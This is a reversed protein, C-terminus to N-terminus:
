CSSFRGDEDRCIDSESFDRSPTNPSTRAKFGGPTRATVQVTEGSRLKLTEKNNVAKNMFEREAKLSESTNKVTLARNNQTIREKNEKIVQQKKKEYKDKDQSVVPQQNGSRPILRTGTSWKLSGGGPGSDQGPKKTPTWDENKKKM